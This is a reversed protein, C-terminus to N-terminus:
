MLATSRAPRPPRASPWFTLKSALVSLIRPLTLASFRESAQTEYHRKVSTSFRSHHGSSRRISRTKGIASRTLSSRWSVPLVTVRLFRATWDDANPRRLLRGPWRPHRFAPRRPECSCPAVERTARLWLLLPLPQRLRKAPVETSFAHSSTAGIVLKLLRRSAPPVM